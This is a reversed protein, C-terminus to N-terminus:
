PIHTLQNIVIKSFHKGQQSLRGVNVRCCKERCSKIRSKMGEDVQDVTTSQINSKKVPLSQLTEQVMSVNPPANEDSELPEEFTKNEQEIIKGAM